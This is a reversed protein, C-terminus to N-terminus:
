AKTDGGSKLIVEVTQLDSPYTVKLNCPEGEVMYVPIGKLVFIRCADTLAEREEDTLTECARKFLLARFSQPTQQQFMLSRDPMESIFKGDDSKVITDIAPIATGCAGYKAAAAINARIIRASVLPRVADHTVLITDENLGYHKEIYTLACMLTENRDSGGALVTIRGHANECRLVLERTYGVWEDPTLVMINEFDLNELFREITHLIIPKEGVELFQKPRGAGMRTGVGGALIAAFINSM